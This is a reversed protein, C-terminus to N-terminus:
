GDLFRGVILVFKEPQEAFAWHGAGELPILAADDILEEMKRGMWIPTDEDEAGWILLTPASIQGLLDTLDEAVVTRLTMRMTESAQLYDASGVRSRLRGQLRRGPPGFRGVLRGLKAVAVKLYYSPKRRPRLGAADVLVLKGIEIRGSAAMQIAIRGGHSHAIVDIPGDVGLKALFKEVLRAYEASGWPVLPEDSDGFGPLDPIILRGKLRQAVALMASARSGWGHLVLLTRGAGQALYAVGIEEIEVRDM